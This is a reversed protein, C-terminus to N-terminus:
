LRSILSRIFPPRVDEKEGLRVVIINKKPDVLIWQHSIGEATFQASENPYLELCWLTEKDGKVQQM